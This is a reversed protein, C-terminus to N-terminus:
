LRVFIDTCILLDSFSMGGRFSALVLSLIEFTISFYPKYLSVVFAVKRFFVQMENIRRLNPTTFALCFSEVFPVNYFEPIVESLVRHFLKGQRNERNDSADRWEATDWM